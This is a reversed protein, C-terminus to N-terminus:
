PLLRAALSHTVIRGREHRTQPPAAGFTTPQRSVLLAHWWTEYGVAHLWEVLEQGRYSDFRAATLGPVNELLVARPRIEDVLRLAEPWLDREDAAGLQQGALTFPTCNM